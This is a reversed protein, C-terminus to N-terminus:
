CLVSVAELDTYDLTQLLSLSSAKTDKRDSRRPAFDAAAIPTFLKPANKTPIDNRYRRIVIKSRDYSYTDVPADIRELSGRLEILSGGDTQAYTYIDNGTVLSTLSTDPLYSGM